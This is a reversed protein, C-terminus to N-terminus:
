SGVERERKARVREIKEHVRAFNKLWRDYDQGKFAFFERVEPHPLILFEGKGLSEVVCEAVQEATVSMFQLFQHVPDDPDLFDTAVGAPCLVSVKLGRKQYQVSLWEAFAVTGHKTVSYPASGIETLLGAASATPLFYGGGRELWHPVLLRAAYVHSMVNVQWTRLWQADDAEFGGKATVGANSCYLDIGGFQTITGEILRQVDAESAVDCAVARGGVKAAVDQAAALDIDAVVIARPRERAFRECLARGIGHAGGTVVIVQDRLEM